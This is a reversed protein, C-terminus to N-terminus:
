DCRDLDLPQVYPWFANSAEQGPPGERAERSAGLLERRTVDIRLRDELRRGLRDARVVQFADRNGAGAIGAGDALLEPGVPVHVPRAALWQRVVRPRHVPFGPRHLLLEIALRPHVRCRPLVARTPDASCRELPIRPLCEHDVAIVGPVHIARAARRNRRRGVIRLSPLQIQPDVRVAEELGRPHRAGVRYGHPPPLQAFHAAVTRRRHRLLDGHDRDLHALVPDIRRDVLLVHQLPDVRPHGM